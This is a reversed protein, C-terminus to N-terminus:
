VSVQIHLLYVFRAGQSTLSTWLHMQCLHLLLPDMQAEASRQPQLSILGDRSVVPETLDFTTRNFDPVMASECAFLSPGNGPKIAEPIAPMSAHHLLVHSTGHYMSLAAAEHGYSLLVLNEDPMWAATLLSDPSAPEITIESQVSGDLGRIVACDRHCFVLM